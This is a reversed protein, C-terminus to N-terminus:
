WTFKFKEALRDITARLDKAEEELKARRAFADEQELAFARDADVTKAQSQTAARRRALDALMRDVGWIEGDVIALRGRKSDILAQLPRRAAQRRAADEVHFQRHARAAAARNMRSVADIASKLGSCYPEAPMARIEREMKRAADLEIDVHRQEHEAIHTVLADWNARAGGGLTDVYEHRPLTVVLKLDITLRQLHCFTSQPLVTWALHISSATSGVLRWGQPDTMSHQELYEIIEDSTVGRVDYYTTSREVKLQIPDLM